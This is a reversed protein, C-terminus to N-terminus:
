RNHSLSMMKRPYLENKEPSFAMEYIDFNTRENEKCKRNLIDIIKQRSEKPTKMGFIISELDEFRYELLRNEPEDYFNLASSLVIRYEKEHAWEPLKKYYARSFFSWHENRWEDTKNLVDISCNSYVGDEDTYWQEILQPLPLSGLNKFFDLDEFKASYDIPKFEFDRFESIYGSITSYSSISKLPITPNVLNTKFKLCVGTHNVGYTGWISSNTCNDMFCAVYATPYTLEDLADIYVQTFEIFVFQLKYSDRLKHLLEADLVKLTEHIARIIETYVDDEISNWLDSFNIKSYIDDTNQFNIIPPFGREKNVRFISKLATLSLIKLHVYLEEQYIKNTNQALFDIYNIVFENSFFEDYISKMRKRYIETPLKSLCDYVPIIEKTIVEDDKLLFVIITARELCLLYHKLLNRWVIKDGKWFYRRTGEMPDNLQALSAFYIQQKELEQYQGLLNEVSRFRYM